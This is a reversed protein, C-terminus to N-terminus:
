IRRKMQPQVVRRKGLDMGEGIMFGHAYWQGEYYPYGGETPPAPSPTYLSSDGQMDRRVPTGAEDRKQAAETGDLEFRQPGDGPLEARDNDALEARGGEAAAAARKRRRQMVVLAAAAAALVALGGVAAGAGISAKASTSLGGSGNSRNSAQEVPLTPTPPITQFITKTTAPTTESTPPGTTTTSTSSCPPLPLVTLITNPVSPLRSGQPMHPHRSIVAATTSPTGQQKRLSTTQPPDVFNGLASNVDEFINRRRVGRRTLTPVPHFITVGDCVVTDPLAVGVAYCIEDLYNLIAALDSGLCAGNACCIVAVLSDNNTSQCSDGQVLSKNQCVAPNPPTKLCSVDQDLCAVVDSPDFLWGNRYARNIEDCLRTSSNAYAEIRKLMKRAPVNRIHMYTAQQLSGANNDTQMDHNLLWQSAM